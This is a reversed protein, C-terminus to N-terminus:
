FFKRSINFGIYLDSDTVGGGAMQGFTTGFGNSFNLQFSHGGARREVGFSDYSFGPDYGFRPAIEGVVYLSSRVRLRAGLGVVFTSDDDFDDSLANTNGVWIPEVYLAGHRGISRSIVAGLTPSYRDRFNNTGEIAVLADIGVPSSDSQRLPRTSFSSNFRASAREICASSRARSSGSATSSASRRAAM